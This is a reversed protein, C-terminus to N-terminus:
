PQLIWDDVSRVVIFVVLVKMLGAVTGWQFLAVLAGSLAASIPGLFPVMSSLAAWLAIYVAYKLGIVGYCIGTFLGMFVAQLLLGRIYNGFSHNIEVYVNLFMEVYRSPVYDLFHELFRQGDMMFFYTLFPVLFSMELLPLIHMRIFSPAQEIFKLVWGRADYAIQNRMWDSVGFRQLW